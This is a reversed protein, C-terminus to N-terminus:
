STICIWLMTYLVAEFDYVLIKCGYRDLPEALRLGLAWELVRLQSTRFLSPM